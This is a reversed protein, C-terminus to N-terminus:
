SIRSISIVKGFEMDAEELTEQAKTWADDDNAARIIKNIDNSTCIAGNEDEFQFSYDFLNDKEEKNAVVMSIYSEAAERSLGDIMLLEICESEDLGDQLYTNALVAFRKQEHIAKNAQKRMSNHLSDVFNIRQIDRNTIARM